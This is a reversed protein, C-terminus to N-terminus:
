SAAVGFIRGILATVLMALGGGATVRLAGLAASAGGLRAGIGGLSALSFLSIAAIWASRQSAPAVLLALIPILAFLAFGVASIGAAQLPRALAEQELGLEDRLHAALRDKASLQEAVRAALEPELGRREYILALERLESQPQAALEAKERQIDAQEADRQASVSVYEGVAMSMAGAALGAVGAVLIASREAASAAVGIMLSSTSVIADTSGLVLARLWGARGSQHREVHAQHRAMFAPMIALM